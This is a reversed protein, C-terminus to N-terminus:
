RRTEWQMYHKAAVVLVVCWALLKAVMIGGEQWVDGAAMPTFGADTGSLVIAGPNGSWGLNVLDMLLAFPTNDIIQQANDPMLGRVGSQSAMGLVVIPMSTIQAAEANKTFASTIFALSAAVVVSLVLAVVYLAPNVPIASGMALVLGPMAIGAILVFITSPACIAMLIQVDTAEGTRLRKLVGEDRRTTTMSLVSYYLVLLAALLLFLELAIGGSARADEPTDTSLTGMMLAPVGLATILVMSLIVKNRRFQKWEAIALSTM